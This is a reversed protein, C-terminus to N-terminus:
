IILSVNRFDNVFSKGRLLSLEGDNLLYGTTRAMKALTLRLASIETERELLTTRIVSLENELKRAKNEANIKSHDSQDLDIKLKSMESMLDLNTNELTSKTQLSQQLRDDAGILQSKMSDLMDELSEIKDNQSEIKESM